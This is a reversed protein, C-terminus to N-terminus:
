SPQGRLRIAPRRPPSLFDRCKGSSTTPPGRVIRIESLDGVLKHNRPNEATGRSVSLPPSPRPGSPIRILLWLEFELQCTGRLLPTLHRRALSGTVLAGLAGSADDGLTAPLKNTPPQPVTSPGAPSLGPAAASTARGKGPGFERLQIWWRGGRIIRFFLSRLPSGFYLIFSRLSLPVDPSAM